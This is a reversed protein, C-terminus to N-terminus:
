VLYRQRFYEAGVAQRGDEPTYHEVVQVTPIAAQHHALKALWSRSTPAPACSSCHPVAASWVVDSRTLASDALCAPVLLYRDALPAPLPDACQLPPVAAPLTQGDFTIAVNTLNHLTAKM